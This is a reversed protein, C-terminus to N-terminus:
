RHGPPTLRRAVGHLLRQDVGREADHRGFPERLPPM